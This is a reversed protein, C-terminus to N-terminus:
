GERVAEAEAEAECDPQALPLAVTLRLLDEEEAAEPEGLLEPLRFAETLEVPEGEELQAAEPLALEEGEEEPLPPPPETVAERVGETLEETLRM